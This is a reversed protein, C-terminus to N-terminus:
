FTVVACLKERRLRTGIHTVCATSEIKAETEHRTLTGGSCRSIISGATCNKVPLRLPLGKRLGGQWTGTRSRELGERDVSKQSTDSVFAEFWTVRFRNVSAFYRPGPVLCCDVLLNVETAAHLVLLWLVVCGTYSDQDWKISRAWNTSKQKIPIKFIYKNKNKNKTKKICLLMLVITLVIFTLFIRVIKDRNLAVVFVPCCLLSLKVADLSCEITFLDQLQRLFKM